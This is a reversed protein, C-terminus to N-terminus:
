VSIVLLVFVATLVKAQDRVTGDLLVFIVILLIEDKYIQITHAPHANMSIQRQVLQATSGLLASRQTLLRKLVTTGRHVTLALAEGVQQATPELQARM